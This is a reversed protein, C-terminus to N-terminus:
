TGKSMLKPRYRINKKKKKKNNWQFKSLASKPDKLPRVSFCIARATKKKQGSFGYGAYFIDVFFTKSVGKKEPYVRLTHLEYIYPDM